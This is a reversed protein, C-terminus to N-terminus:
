FFYIVSSSINIGKKLRRASIVEAMDKIIKFTCIKIICNPISDGLEPYLSYQQTLGEKLPFCLYLLYSKRSSEIKAFKLYTKKIMTKEKRFM